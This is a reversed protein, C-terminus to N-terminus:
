IGAFWEYGAADEWFGGHGRYLDDLAAVAQVRMVYKAQKYGLHREARLRIPAGHGVTLPAGNMALALLTQPHFADYLDVSEYYPWPSGRYHDACHFVIFRAASKLKAASLVTKLQPGTWEGIATWGEVCNHATIQSRMPMARLHDLSLKLPRDVLGDVVLRWDAFNNSAQANYEATNPNTSGNTRFNPSRQDPRYEPALTHATSLSRQLAHNWDDGKWLFKRFTENQGLKDCGALLGGAGTVLGATLAGRRTIIGSM